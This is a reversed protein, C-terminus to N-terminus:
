PEMGTTKAILKAALEVAIDKAVDFAGKGVKSLTEMLKLGDKKQAQEEAEAIFTLQQYDGSTRAVKALELKLTELESMLQSLDVQDAIAEWQQQQKITGVSQRGIAGAYGYNVNQDGHVVSMHPTRQNTGKVEDRGLPTPRLEMNIPLRRTPGFHDGGEIKKEHSLAELATILSNDSPEKAFAQKVDIISVWHPYDRETITLVEHALAEDYPVRQEADPSDPLEMARDMALNALHDSWGNPRSTEYKWAKPVQVVTFGHRHLRELKELAELGLANTTLDMTLQRDVTAARIFARQNCLRLMNGV